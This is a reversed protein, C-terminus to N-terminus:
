KRNKHTHKCLHASLFVTCCPEGQGDTRERSRKCRLKGQKPEMDGQLCDNLSMCGQSDPEGRSSGSLTARSQLCTSRRAGHQLTFKGSDKTEISDEGALENNQSLLSSLPLGPRLLQMGEPQAEYLKGPVNQQTFGPTRKERKEWFKM